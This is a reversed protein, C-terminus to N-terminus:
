ARRALVALWAEGRDIEANLLTILNQNGVQVVRLWSAQKIRAVEPRDKGETICEEYVASRWLEHVAAAVREIQDATLGLGSPSYFGRRALRMQGTLGYIEEKPFAGILRHRGGLRCSRNGGCISRSVGSAEDGVLRRM